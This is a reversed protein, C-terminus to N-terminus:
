AEARPFGQEEAGDRDHLGRREIREIDVLIKRHRDDLGIALDRGVIQRAPAVTERLLERGTHDTPQGVIIPEIANAGRRLSAGTLAHEPFAHGQSPSPPYRNESLFMRWRLLLLAYESANSRFISQRAVGNDEGRWKQLYLTGAPPSTREHGAEILAAFADQDGAASSEEAGM